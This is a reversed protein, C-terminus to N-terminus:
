LEAVDKLYKVQTAVVDPREHGDYYICKSYTQPWFGLKLM